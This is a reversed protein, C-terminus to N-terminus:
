PMAALQRALKACEKEVYALDRYVEERHLGHVPFRPILDYAHGCDFGFWWVDDPEGPLPVHCIKGQCSASYTLGGHVNVDMDEHDKGHAPHSSNVAVYGCWIGTVSHRHALCPLGTADRWEKRDPENTWPGDDWATKDM